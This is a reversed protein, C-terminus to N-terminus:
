AMGPAKRSRASFASPFSFFGGTDIEELVIALRLSETGREGQPTYDNRRGSIVSIRGGARGEGHNREEKGGRQKMCPIRVIRAPYDSSFFLVSM